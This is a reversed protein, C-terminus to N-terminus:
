GEIHGVVRRAGVLGTRTGIGHRLGVDFVALALGVVDDGGPGLTEILLDGFEVFEGIRQSGL